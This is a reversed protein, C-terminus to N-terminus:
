RTLAVTGKGANNRTRHVSYAVPSVFDVPRCRVSSSIVLLTKLHMVPWSRCTRGAQGVAGIAVRHYTTKGLDIGVSHIQM